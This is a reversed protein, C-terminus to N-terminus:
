ATAAKLAAPQEELSKFYTDTLQQNLQSHIKQLDDIFTDLGEKLIENVAVEKVLRQARGLVRLASENGPLGRLCQEIEGLCYHITRPFLDDQLLFRLVARGRVSVHVQRRYMQYAELSELVSKWQIDDFPKLEEGLSPLLNSARVGLVRTVMDAREMNRGIRIFEYTMDHSMTGSLKGALMQCNDIIRRM